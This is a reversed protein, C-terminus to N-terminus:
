GETDANIENEIHAIHEKKKWQFWRLTDNYPYEDNFTYDKFQIDKEFIIDSGTLIIPATEQLVASDTVLSIINM